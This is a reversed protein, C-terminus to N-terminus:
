LHLFHFVCKHAQFSFPGPVAKRKRSVGIGSGSISITTTAETGATACLISRAPAAKKNKEKILKVCLKVRYSVM